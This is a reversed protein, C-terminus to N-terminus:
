ITMRTHSEMRHIAIFLPVYFVHLVLLKYLVLRSKRFSLGCTSIQTQIYNFTQKQRAM